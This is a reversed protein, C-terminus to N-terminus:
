APRPKRLIAFSPAALLTTVAVFFLRDILAVSAATAAPIGIL